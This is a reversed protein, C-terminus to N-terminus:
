EEQVGYRASCPQPSRARDRLPGQVKSRQAAKQEQSRLLRELRCAHRCLIAAKGAGSCSLEWRRLRLLFKTALARECM